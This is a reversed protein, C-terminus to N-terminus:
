EREAEQRGGAPPHAARLAPRPSAQHGAPMRSANQAPACVFVTRRPGGKAPRRAMLCDLAEPMFAVVAPVPLPAVLGGFVYVSRSGYASILHVSFAGGFTAGIPYGLSMLSM